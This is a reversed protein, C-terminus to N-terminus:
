CKEYPISLIFATTGVERQVGAQTHAGEAGRTNSTVWPHELATAEGRGPFELPTFEEM